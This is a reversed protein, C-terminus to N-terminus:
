NMVLEGSGFISSRFLKKQERIFNTGQWFCLWGRFTPSCFGTRIRGIRVSLGVYPLPPDRALFLVPNRRRVTCAPSSPPRLRVAPMVWSLLEWSLPELLTLLVAPVLGYAARSLGCSKRLQPSMPLAKARM